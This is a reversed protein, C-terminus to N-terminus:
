STVVHHTPLKSRLVLTVARGVSNTSGPCGMLEEFLLYLFFENIIKGEGAKKSGTNVVETSIM